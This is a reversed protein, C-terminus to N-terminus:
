QLTFNLPERSERMDRDSPAFDNPALPQVGPHVCMFRLALIKAFDPNKAKSAPFLSVFADFAIEARSGSPESACLYIANTHAISLPPSEL